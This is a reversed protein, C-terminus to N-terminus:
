YFAEDYLNFGVHNESNNKIKSFTFNEIVNDIIEKTLRGNGRNSYILHYKMREAIEAIHAGSFGKLEKSKIRLYSALTEDLHDKLKDYLIQFREELEPLPFELIFDFRNPRNAVAVDLLSPDNTTVITLIGNNQKIGDLKNLFQSLINRNINSARKGLFLDGDEFIIMVPSILNAFEYVDDLVESFNFPNFDKPQVIIAPIKLNSILIRLFLTKGTGPPGCLIIGRNPKLGMKKIREMNCVFNSIHFDIQALLSKPIKLEHWEAKPVDIWEGYIDFTGYRIVKRERIYQRFNEMLSIIKETGRKEAMKYYICIKSGNGRKEFLKPNQLIFVFRFGDTDECFFITSDYVEYYTDGIKFFGNIKNDFLRFSIDAFYDIKNSHNNRFEELKKHIQDNYITYHSHFFEKCLIQYLIGSTIPISKEFKTIRNMSTGIFEDIIGESNIYYYIYNTMKTDEMIKDYIRVSTRYLMDEIKKIFKSTFYHQNKVKSM